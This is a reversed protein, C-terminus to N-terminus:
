PALGHTVWQTGDVGASVQEGRRVAVSAQWGRRSDELGQQYSSGVGATTVVIGRLLSEVHKYLTHQNKVAAFPCCFIFRVLGFGLSIVMWNSNLM